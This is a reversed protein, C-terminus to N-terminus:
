GPLADDERRLPSPAKLSSEEPAPGRSDASPTKSHTIREIIRGDQMNFVQTVRGVLRSDHTSFLFTVGLDSNLRQFLDILEIATKSDLNATPEDAFVIAPHSALARAVAVRQQQGGSMQDPFADIKHSLGVQELAVLARERRERENDHRIVSTFEVNELATLAPFLNYSQFIFGVKERRFLAMEHRSLRNLDQGAITVAGQTPTDLGAALNLLTTKGSGSPGVLAAFAGSELEFSVDSVAAIPPQGPFIRHVNELSLTCHKM